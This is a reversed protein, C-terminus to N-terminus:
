AKKKEQPKPNKRENISTILDEHSVRQNESISDQYEHNPCSYAVSQLVAFREACPNGCLCADYRESEPKAGPTAILNPKSVLFVIPGAHPQVHSCSLCNPVVKKGEGKNLKMQSVM